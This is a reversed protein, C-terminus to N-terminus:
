AAQSVEAKVAASDNVAIVAFPILALITSLVLASIYTLVKMQIERPKVM